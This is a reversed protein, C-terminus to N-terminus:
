TWGDVPTLAVAAGGITVALLLVSVPMSAPRAERGTRSSRFPEAWCPRSPVYSPGC